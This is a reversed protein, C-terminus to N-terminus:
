IKPDLGAYRILNQETARPLNHLLNLHFARAPVTASRQQQESTLATPVSDRYMEIDECAIANLKRVGYRVIQQLFTAHKNTLSYFAKVHFKHSAEGHEMDFNDSAGYKRIFDPYHSM